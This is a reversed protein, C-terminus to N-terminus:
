PCSPKAACHMVFRDLCAGTRGTPRLEALRDLAEDLDDEVPETVTMEPAHNGAADCLSVPAFEDDLGALRMLEVDGLFFQRASASGIAAIGSIPVGSICIVDLDLTMPPIGLGSALPVSHRRAPRSTKPSVMAGLLRCGSISLVIARTAVVGAAVEAALVCPLDGLVNGAKEVDKGLPRPRLHWRRRVVIAGM